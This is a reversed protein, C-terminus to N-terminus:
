GGGDKFPLVVPEENHEVVKIDNMYSYLDGACCRVGTSIGDLCACTNDMGLDKLISSITSLEDSRRFLEDILGNMIKLTSENM